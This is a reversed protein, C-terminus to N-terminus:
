KESRALTEEAWAAFDEAWKEFVEQLRDGYMNKVVYALPGTMVEM